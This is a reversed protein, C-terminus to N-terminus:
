GRPRWTVCVTPGSARCDPRTAFIVSDSTVRQPWQPLGAPGTFVYEVEPRVGLRVMEARQARRWRRLVAVTERDLTITRAGSRTKPPGEVVHGAALTRQNAVVALGADLNVDGWRLGVVEVRRAGSIVFYRWLAEDHTGAIHKLFASLQEPTWARVTAQPRSPWESEHAANSSVLKWRVADALAKSLVGLVNRRTKASLGADALEGLMTEITAADLAALKIGGLRPVLHNRTIRAYSDATTPRLDRGALSPLWRQPLFGEVTTQQGRRGVPV